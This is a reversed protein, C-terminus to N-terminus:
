EVFETSTMPHVHVLPVPLINLTLHDTANMCTVMVHVNVSGLLGGASQLQSREVHERVAFANCSCSPAQESRSSYHDHHRLQLQHFNM